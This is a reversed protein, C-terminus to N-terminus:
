GDPKWVDEWNTFADAMDSFGPLDVDVVTSIECTENGRAKPGRTARGVMQSFLVLSRTPRAIVVASTGPADFGTTLVGFNCLVIPRTTTARFDRVLRQRVTRPTTGTVVRGDLSVASLTAAITEAHMVSAAFLLIRLHGAEVLRVLERVIVTNREASEALAGLADEPYDDRLRRTIAEIRQKLRPAAEYELRRFTPRALYGEAILYSVPDDWGPVELMVKREGFFEALQEDAAIDSWTRGPTATLGLLANHSGTDVLRTIVDRYTPAIAQHAEDVVVLKARSGLRLVDLPERVALSHMKQLGAVVLGDEVGSLDPTHDGWFRLMPLQRNGLSRWAVRFADAAQDLLEASAALWVVLGVDFHNLFRALVHMATRTKGAGTPMHLVVRGYGDELAKWVGDAARRQHPFLGFDTNIQERDPDVLEAASPGADLGFFGFFQNRMVPDAIPDVNQLDERGPLSLRRALEDLKANTMAGYCMQQVSHRRWVDEPGLRFLTLAVNRFAPVLADQDALAVVTSVLPPGLLETLDDASLRALLEELDQGPSLM